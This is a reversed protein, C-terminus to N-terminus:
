QLSAPHQAQRFLLGIILITANSASFGGNSIQLLLKLNTDGEPSGELHNIIQHTDFNFFPDIIGFGPCPNHFYIHDRNKVQFPTCIVFLKGWLWM